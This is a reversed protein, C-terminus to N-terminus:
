SVLFIEDDASWSLLQYRFDRKFGGPPPILRYRIGDIYLFENITTKPRRNLSVGAAVAVAAGLGLGFSRLFSRRNM